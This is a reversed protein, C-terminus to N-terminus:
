GRRSRCHAGRNEVGFCTTIEERLRATEFRWGADLRALVETDLMVGALEMRAIPAVAKNLRTSLTVGDPASRQHELESQFRVWLRRAMVADLAAYAIQEGTLEDRGWDSNQMEKPLTVGLAEKVAIALSPGRTGERRNDPEGRLFLGSLLITDVIEAGSLDVGNALLMKIDFSLNHGVLACRWIPSLTPSSLHVKRLDIVLAKLETAIQLLRVEAKLPDLAAEADAAYERRPATEIDLGIVATEALLATIEREATAEDDILDVEVGLRRLLDTSTSQGEKGSRLLAIIEPKQHRMADVLAPPPKASAELLLNDGDIQIHIGAAHAAELIEAAGLSLADLRGAFDDVSM